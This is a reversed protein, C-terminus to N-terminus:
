VSGVTEAVVAIGVAAMGVLLPVTGWGRAFCTYYATLDSAESSPSAAHGAGEASAAAHGVGEASPADLHHLAEPGTDQPM